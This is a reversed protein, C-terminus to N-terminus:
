TALRHHDNSGGKVPRVVKKVRVVHSLLSLGLNNPKLSHHKYETSVKELGGSVHSLCQPAVKEGVEIHLMRMAGHGTLRRGIAM